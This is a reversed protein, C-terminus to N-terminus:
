RNEAAVAQAFCFSLDRPVGCASIQSRKLRLFDILAPRHDTELWSHPSAAGALLACLGAVGTCVCDLGQFLSHTLGGKQCCVAFDPLVLVFVSTGLAEEFFHFLGSFCTQKGRSGKRSTV